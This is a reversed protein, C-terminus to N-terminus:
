MVGHDTYICNVALLNNVQSTIIVLFHIIKRLFVEKDRAQTQTCYKLIIKSGLM